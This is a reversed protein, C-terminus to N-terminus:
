QQAEPQPAELVDRDDIGGEIREGGLYFRGGRDVWAPATNSFLDSSRVATESYPATLIQAQGNNGIVSLEIEVRSAGGVSVGARGNGRATIGGLSVDRASNAASLGDVQFGQVTLNLVRVNRV